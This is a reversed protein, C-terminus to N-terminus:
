FFFQKQLLLPVYYIYSTPYITPNNFKQRKVERDMLADNQMESFLSSKGVVLPKLICNGNFEKVLVHCLHLSDTIIM